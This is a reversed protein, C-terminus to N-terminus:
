RWRRPYNGHRPPCYVAPACHQHRHIPRRYRPTYVVPAPVILRAPPKCINNYQRYHHKNYNGRHRGRNGQAQTDIVTLLLSLTFFTGILFHKTNM